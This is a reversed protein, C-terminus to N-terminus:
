AAITVRCWGMGVTENGGVQLYPHDAFLNKTSLQLAQASQGEPKRSASVAAACYLVSDTPLTEEYWLAGDVVTKRANDIRIHPQVPIAYRALHTFQDDHVIALQQELRAQKIGSISSLWETLPGLDHQEMGFLFEELYLSGKGQPVLATEQDIEPLEIMTASQGLRVVDALARQLLAPCSVWKFHTTLSRVPLLLLRADGVALAGAHDSANATEPGFLEIITSNDLKRREAHARLAGKMASGYVCPWDTHAERQIPLDIVGISKGAGAHMSTEAVLGLLLSLM